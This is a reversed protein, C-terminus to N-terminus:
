MGGIVSFLTYSMHLNLVSFNIFIFPQNKILNQSHLTALDSKLDPADVMEGRPSEIPMILLPHQFNM